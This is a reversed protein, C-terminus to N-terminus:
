EEKVGFLAVPTNIHQAVYMRALNGVLKATIDVHEIVLVNRLILQSFYLTTGIFSSVHKSWLKLLRNCSILQM